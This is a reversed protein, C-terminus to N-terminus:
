RNEMFLAFLAALTIGPLVKVMPGLPDTFLAPTLVAAGSLYALSLILMGLAALRTHRRFLIGIGLIVDSFSGGIVAFMAFANPTGTRTLM